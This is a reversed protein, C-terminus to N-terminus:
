WARIFIGPFGTKVNVSAYDVNVHASAQICLKQSQTRILKEGINIILADARACSM